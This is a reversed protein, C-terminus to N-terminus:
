LVCKSKQWEPKYTQFSERTIVVPFTSSISPPQQQPQGYISSFLIIGDATLCLIALKWHQKLYQLQLNQKVEPLHMHM